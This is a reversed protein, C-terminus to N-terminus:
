RLHIELIDGDMLVHEPKMIKQGEFRVSKGWVRAFKYKQLFDKHLKLCVDKISSGKLMILPVDLDAKKNVEKLYIRIFNLREFILDKLRDINYKINASIFIDAKAPSLKSKFDGLTEKTLLDAKNAVVIAPIYQKSGEIVDILQDPTINERLIIDANNIKFEKLMATIMEKTLHELKVTTGINVGGRTTKVIKVDPKRQNIRVGTDYIEQVLVDYHEPHFVDMLVIILDANRIVALVEKGRGRGAAAGSVIGPVDLVQIKAHKYELVGPIVTLTTFAYAAVPSNANTLVNLLSSKGVSPYGLLIVTADGTKRVSYGTSGKGVGARTAEKDKLRAIQAKYLGIAGQTKKNYKTESIQKELQKIQENINSKQRELNAKHQSSVGSKEPKTAM